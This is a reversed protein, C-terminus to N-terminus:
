SSPINPVLSVTNPGIRVVPGPIGKDSLIISKVTREGYERHLQRLHNLLEGGKVVDFYVQYLETAAALKPGSFHCLPHFFLRYIVVTLLFLTFSALILEIVGM